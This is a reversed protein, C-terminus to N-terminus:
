NTTGHNENYKILWDSICCATTKEYLVGLFAWLLIIKYMFCTKMYHTDSYFSVFLEDVPSRDQKGEFRVCVAASCVTLKLM